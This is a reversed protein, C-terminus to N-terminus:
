RTRTQRHRMLIIIHGILAIVFLIIAAIMVTKNAHVFDSGPRQKMFVGFLAWLAPVTIAANDNRSYVGLVALTALIMLVITVIVGTSSLGDLGAKVMFTMVNAFTAFILWGTHLGVPWLLMLPKEYMLHLRSNMTGVLKILVLAYAVILILAILIQNYSWAVIWAINLVMWALYLPMVKDYYFHKFNASISPIWPVILTLIVGLYIIGWISFTFGAPALLNVHMDSVVQQTYPFVIGFSSLYNVVLAGIFLIIAIIHLSKGRNSIKNM